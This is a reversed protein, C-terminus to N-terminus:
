CCGSRASPVKARLFGQVMMHAQEMGAYSGLHLYAATRTAPRTFATFGDDLNLAQHDVPVAIEM